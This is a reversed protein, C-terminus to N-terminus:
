SFAGLGLSFVVAATLPWRLKPYWSPAETKGALRWDVALMAAFAAALVPLTAVTPLLLACWAVLSPVVSIALRRYSVREQNATGADGIALGWHVGGLFSLIVAGYAALALIAKEELSGVLIVGAGALFAFPLVGAAGLWAAAPPIRGPSMGAQSTARSEEHALRSADARHDGAVM